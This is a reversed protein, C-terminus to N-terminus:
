AARRLRVEIEDALAAFDGEELRLVERGRRRHHADRAADRRQAFASGHTEPHDLEIVLGLEAYYGDVSMRDLRVNMEPAPLGRAKLYKLLREEQRARTHPKALAARLAKVGRHGTTTAYHRLDVLSTLGSAAAEHVLRDIPWGTAAVDVLARAITTARLGRIRTVEDSRLSAHHM